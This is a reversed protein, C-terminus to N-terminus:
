VYIFTEGPLPIRVPLFARDVPFDLYEAFDACRKRITGIYAIIYLGIRSTRLCLGGSFPKHGSKNPAIKKVRELFAAKSFQKAQGAFVDRDTFRDEM